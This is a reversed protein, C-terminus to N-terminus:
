AQKNIKRKKSARIIFYAGVGSGLLVCPIILLFPKITNRKSQNPYVDNVFSLFSTRGNKLDGNADYNYEYSSIYEYYSKQLIM